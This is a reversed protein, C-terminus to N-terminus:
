QESKFTQLWRGWFYQNSFLGVASLPLSQSRTPLFVKKFEILLPACIVGFKIGVVHKLVVPASRPWLLNAFNMFRELPVNWFFHQTLVQYASSSPSWLMDNSCVWSWGARSVVACVASTSNPHLLYGTEDVTITYVFLWFYISGPTTLWFHESSM